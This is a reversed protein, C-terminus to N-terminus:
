KSLEVVLGDLARTGTKKFFGNLLPGLFRLASTLTIDATYRIQTGGDTTEFEMEDLAMFGNGSGKLVVRSNKEYETIEYAMDVKGPGFHGILEYTTGVGVPGTSTQRASDVGPDWYQANAFDAAYEFVEEIPRRFKRIESLHYTNGTRTQGSM